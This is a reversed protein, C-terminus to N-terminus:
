ETAWTIQDEKNIDKLSNRILQYQCKRVEVVGVFEM